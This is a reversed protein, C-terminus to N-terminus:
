QTVQLMHLLSHHMCCYVSSSVGALSARVEELPKIRGATKEKLATFCSWAEAHKEHSTWDEPKMIAPSAGMFSTLHGGGSQRVNKLKHELLYAKTDPFYNEWYASKLWAPCLTKYADLLANLLDEDDEVQFAVQAAAHLGDQWKVAADGM